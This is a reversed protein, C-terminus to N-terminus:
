MMRCKKKMVLSEFFKTTIVLPLSARLQLGDQLKFAAGEVLFKRALINIYHLSLFWPNLVFNIADAKCLLSGNKKKQTTKGSQILNWEQGNHPLLAMTLFSAMHACM